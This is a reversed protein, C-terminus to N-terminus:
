NDKFRGANFRYVKKVKEVDYNHVFKPLMKKLHM